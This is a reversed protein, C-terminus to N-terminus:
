GRRLVTLGFSEPSHSWLRWGPATHLFEVIAQLLGPESQDDGRTGCLDTDHFVLYKKVGKGHRSLEASLQGYTHKTDIYLLDAEVAPLQLVDQVFFRFGKQVRRAYEVAVQIPCDKIDYSDLSVRVGSLLSMTSSYHTVEHVGFEVATECEAAISRLTEAHEKTGLSM